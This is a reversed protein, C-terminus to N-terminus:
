REDSVDTDRPPSITERDRENLNINLALVDTDGDKGISAEVDEPEVPVYKRVVELIERKMEEMFLPQENGRSRRGDRQHSVIIQLREKAVKASPNRRKFLDFVGM